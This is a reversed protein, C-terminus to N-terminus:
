TGVPHSYDKGMVLRWQGAERVWLFAIDLATELRVGATDVQVGTQAFAVVAADPGLVTVKMEGNEFEEFTWGNLLDTIASRLGDLTGCCPWPSGAWDSAASMYSNIDEAHFFQTYETSAERVAEEIVAKQEDTLETTAPQCATALFALSLAAFALRRM